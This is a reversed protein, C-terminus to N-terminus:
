TTPPITKALGEFLLPESYGEPVRSVALGRAWVPKGKMKEALLSTMEEILAQQDEASRAYPFPHFEIFLSGVHDWLSLERLVDFESGEIDMKVLDVPGVEGLIVDLNGFDVDFAPWSSDNYFSTSGSNTPDIYIKTKPVSGTVALPIVTIDPFGSLLVGRRLNELNLSSPEVAFVKAGPYLKKIYFTFFGTNAGVDLVKRIKLGSFDPMTTQSDLTLIEPTRSGPYDFMFFNVGRVWVQYLCSNLQIAPERM